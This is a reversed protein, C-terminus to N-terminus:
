LSGLTAVGGTIRCGTDVVLRKMIIPRDDSLISAVSSESSARHVILGRNIPTGPTALTDIQPWRRRWNCTCIWGSRKRSARTTCSSMMAAAPSASHTDGSVNRLDDAADGPPQNSLGLWRMPTSCLIGISVGSSM